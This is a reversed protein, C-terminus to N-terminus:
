RKALQRLVNRRRKMVNRAVTMQREFEPDYPTMRYGGPTETLFLTDGDGVRLASLAEQPLIVGLSNGVKRIKLTVV